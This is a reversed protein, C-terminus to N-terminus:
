TKASFDVCNMSVCCVVRAYAAFLPLLAPRQALWRDCLTHVDCLHNRCPIFSLSPSYFTLEHIKRMVKEEKVYVSRCESSSGEYLRRYVFIFYVFNEVVKKWVRCSSEPTHVVWEWGRKEHWPLPSGRWGALSFNYISYMNFTTTVQGIIYYLKQKGKARGNARRENAEITYIMNRTYIEKTENLKM